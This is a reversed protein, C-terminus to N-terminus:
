GGATEIESEHIEKGEAGKEIFARLAPDSVAERLVAFALVGRPALIEAAAPNAVIVRRAGDIVIVGEAMGALIASLRDREAVLDGIRAKLEKALAGLARSLIGFEDPAPSPLDIDYDGQAIRTASATMARLPCAAASRSSSPSSRRSSSGGSCRARPATSTRSRRASACSSAM